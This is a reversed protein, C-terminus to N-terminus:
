IGCIKIIVVDDSIRQWGNDLGLEYEGTPDVYKVALFRIDGEPTLYSYGHYEFCDHQEGGAVLLAQNLNLIQM